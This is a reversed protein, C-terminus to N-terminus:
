KGLLKATESMQVGHFEIESMMTMMTATKWMM